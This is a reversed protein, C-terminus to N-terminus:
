IVRHKPDSAVREERHAVLDKVILDAAARPKRRQIRFMGDADSVPRVFEDGNTGLEPKIMRVILSGVVVARPVILEDERRVYDEMKSRIADAAYIRRM